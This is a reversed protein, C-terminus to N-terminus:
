TEATTKRLSARERQKWRQLRQDLLDIQKQKFAAGFDMGERECEHSLEVLEKGLNLHDVDVPATAFSTAVSDLQQSATMNLAQPSPRSQEVPPPPQSLALRSVPSFDEAVQSVLARDESLNEQNRRDLSIPTQPSDGELPPSSGKGGTQIADTLQVVLMTLTHLKAERSNIKDTSGNFIQQGRSSDSEEIGRDISKQLRGLRAELRARRELERRLETEARLVSKRLSTLSSPTNLKKSLKRDTQSVNPSQYNQSERAPKRKRAAAALIPKLRRREDGTVVESVIRSRRQQRPAPRLSGDKVVVPVKKSTKLRSTPNSFAGPLLLHQDPMRYTPFFTFTGSTAVLSPEQGIGWRSRRFSDESCM